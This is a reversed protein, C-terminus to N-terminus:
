RSRSVGEFFVPWFPDQKPIQLPVVRGDLRLMARNNTNPTVKGIVSSEIGEASLKQLIKASYDPKATILLSGEAIAAVPDICFADCVMKVQPPYVFLSEDIQM